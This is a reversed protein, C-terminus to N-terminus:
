GPIGRRRRGSDVVAVESGAFAVLQWSSWRPLTAQVSQDGLERSRDLCCTVLGWLGEGPGHEPGGPRSTALPDSAPQAPICRASGNHRCSGELWNSWFAGRSSRAVTM